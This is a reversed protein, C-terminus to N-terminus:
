KRWSVRRNCHPCFDGQSIFVLGNCFPCNFRGTLIARDFSIGDNFIISKM